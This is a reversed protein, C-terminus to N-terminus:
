KRSGFIASGVRVMTSGEEMAWQFDGSMGMSLERFYDNGAFKTKKLEEFISKLKKFESRVLNEDESFSAMGMIGCVRAYPYLDFDRSQCFSIIEDPDFGFKSEEKAIHVQLLCNINRQHKAGQRNIEVLLKESEVAHIWSVLPAIFKVKNSQLHGIFHWEIDKPLAAYKETLEQVYNEGFARQGAQYAELIDAVPKTKSVAILRTNLGLQNKLHTINETIINM